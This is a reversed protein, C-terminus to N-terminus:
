TVTYIGRWVGEMSARGTEPGTGTGYTYHYHASISALYDHSNKEEEGNAVKLRTM